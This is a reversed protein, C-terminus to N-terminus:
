LSEWLGVCGVCHRCRFRAAAHDAPPPYPPTTVVLGSDRRTKDQIVMNLGVNADHRLIQKSFQERMQLITHKDM